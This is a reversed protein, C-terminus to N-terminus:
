YVCLSFLFVYQTCQSKRRQIYIHAFRYQRLVKRKFSEKVSCFVYYNIINYFPHPYSLLSIFFFFFRININLPTYNNDTSVNLPTLNELVPIGGALDYNSFKYKTMFQKNIAVDVTSVRTTTTKTTSSNSTVTKGDVNTNVSSSKSTVTTEKVFKNIEEQTNMSRKLNPMHDVSMLTYPNMKSALIDEYARRYTEASPNISRTLVWLVHPNDDPFTM